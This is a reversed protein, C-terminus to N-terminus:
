KLPIDYTQKGTKVEFTLGSTAASQYKPPPAVGGGGAAPGDKPMEPGGKTPPPAVAGSGRIYVKVSGAPPNAIVYEGTPGIPGAVEKGDAYLFVVTGGVPKDNLTVKGTVANGADGSKDGGGCGTLVGLSVSLFLIALARRPAGHVFKKM